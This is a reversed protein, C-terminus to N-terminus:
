RQSRAMDSHTSRAAHVDRTIDASMRRHSTTRLLTTLAWTMFRDSILAAPRLMAESHSVQLSAMWSVAKVKHHRTREYWRLAHSLQGPRNGLESLASCLVMTDLLVQNTGQALTPPM